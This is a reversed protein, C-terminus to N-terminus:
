CQFLSVLRSRARGRIPAYMWFMDDNMNRPTVYLLHAARLDNLWATTEADEKRTQYVRSEHLIQTLSHSTHTHTHCHSPLSHTIM